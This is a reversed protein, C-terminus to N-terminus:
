VMQWASIKIVIFPFRICIESKIRMLIGKIKILLVTYNIYAEKSDKGVVINAPKVDLHLLGKSHVLILAEGIQQIYRLAEEVPMAPRNGLDKGDIFEMPICLHERRGLLSGTREMFPERARVIHPHQCTALKAAERWFKDQRKAAQQKNGQRLAEDSPTKIVWLKGQNDRARYTIGFRGRGIEQEVTYKGNQLRQGAKFAM